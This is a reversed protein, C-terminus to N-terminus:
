TKIDVLHHRIENTKGKPKNALSRLEDIEIGQATLQAHLRPLQKELEQRIAKNEAWITSKLVDGTVEIESFFEGKELFSFELLVHWRSSNTRNKKDNKKDSHSHEENYIKDKIREEIQMHLPVFQEGIKIPIDMSVSHNGTSETQGQNLSRLQNTSIRTLVTNALIKINELVKKQTDQYENKSSSPSLLTKLLKDFGTLNIAPQTISTNATNQLNNIITIVNLLIAKIDQQKLLDIQNNHENKITQNSSTSTNQLLDNLPKKILLSNPLTNAISSTKNPPIASHITKQESTIQEKNSSHSPILSIKELSNKIDISMKKEFFVGTNFIATKVHIPTIGNKTDIGTKELNGLAKIVESTALQLKINKNKTDNITNILPQKAAILQNLIKIATHKEIQQPLYKRLGIDVLAKRTIETFAIDQKSITYTEYTNITPSITSAKTTSDKAILFILKPASLIPLEIHVKTGTQLGTKTIASLAEHTDKIKLTLIDLDTNAYQKAPSSPQTTSDSMHTSAHTKLLNNLVEKPLLQSLRNIDDTSLNRIKAISTEIQRVRPIPTDKDSVNQITQSDIKDRQKNTQQSSTQQPSTTQVRSYKNTSSTEKSSRAETNRTNSESNNSQNNTPRNAPGNTPIKM